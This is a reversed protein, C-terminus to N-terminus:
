ILMLMTQQQKETMMKMCIETLEDIRNSPLITFKVRSERTAFPYYLEIEVM